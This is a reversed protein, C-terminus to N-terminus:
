SRPVGATALGEALRTMFQPPFPWARRALSVTLDPDKRLLRRATRCAEARAGAHVAAAAVIREAWFSDPSAQVGSRAWQAARDYRGAAFHACAVGIFATHRIPEFPILHLATTLERLASEGDGLYASIWGRRHWALAAWPDLALAREILQDAEEVRHALVLAASCHTLAMVDDPALACAEEALERARTRDEGPTSSFHQAARQGWCWAALAKPLGYAPALEQARALGELAADCEKPAVAHVAPLACWTLRLAEDDIQLIGGNPSARVRRLTQSPVEGFQERYRVAFRNVQSFGCDLAIDTVTAACRADLLKRRAMSLRMRRVWGLPTTKLFLKFHTELTRPRVGAADALTELRVPENLRGRLWCLARVLDGPLATPAQSAEDGCPPESAQDRKAM